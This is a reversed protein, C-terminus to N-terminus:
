VIIKRLKQLDDKLKSKVTFTIACGVLYLFDRVEEDIAVQSKKNYFFMLLCNEYEVTTKKVHAYYIKKAVIEISNLKLIFM